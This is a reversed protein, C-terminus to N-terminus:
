LYRGKIDRLLITFMSIRSRLSILSAMETRRNESNALCMDITLHPCVTVRERVCVCVQFRQVGGIADHFLLDWSIFDTKLTEQLSEWVDLHRSKGKKGKGKKEEEGHSPASYNSQIARKTASDVTSKALKRFSVHQLIDVAERITASRDELYRCM